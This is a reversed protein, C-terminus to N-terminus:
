TFVRINKLWKKDCCSLRDVDMVAVLSSGNTLKIFGQYDDFSKDRFGLEDWGPRIGNKIKKASERDITCEKMGTLADKMSIIRGTIDDGAYGSGIMKSDVADRVEFGGSSLRRLSNLHAASGLREGIDAALTRIYTGSSCTVEFTVGPLDVSIIKISHITVMRKELDVAIGQRALEYARRGKCNIASYAPPRQEIDGAFEQVVRRIEEDDIDPVAMTRIIRGTKDLTDTEVGLTMTALYKKKGAMLYNSLKTGQGLLIILLGTAFPDLTGAHGVKKKELARKTKRVVDFSTEGENKDVLIIGDNSDLMKV